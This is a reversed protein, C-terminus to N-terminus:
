EIDESTIFGKRLGIIVAETRSKVNLKSFIEVMYGKVTRLSLDLNISIDKNSLGKSALKLVESERPTLKISDDLLITKRPYKLTHKLVQKFVRSEIVTEGAVTSRVATAVNDEFITKTLYGDAGAELIGIIHEADDHVTLVLISTNPCQAKIQKTAELGNLAPMSIDMIVVDPVSEIAKRVAEEGNHAEAAITIDDQEELIDRVAKIFLPHDDAILVTITKKQNEEISILESDM